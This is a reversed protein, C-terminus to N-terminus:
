GKHIATCSMKSTSTGYGTDIGDSKLLSKASKQCCACKYLKEAGLYSKSEEPLWSHTHEIHQWCSHAQVFENFISLMAEYTHAHREFCQRREKRTGPNRPRRPAWPVRFWCGRALDLSIGMSLDKCLSRTWTSGVSINCYIKDADIIIPLMSFLCPCMVTETCATTSKPARM